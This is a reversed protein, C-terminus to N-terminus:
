FSSCLLAKDFINEPWDPPKKATAACNTPSTTPIFDAGMVNPISPFRRQNCIGSYKVKSISAIFPFSGLLSLKITFGVKVMTGPCSATIDRDVFYM